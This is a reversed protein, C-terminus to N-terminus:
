ENIIDILGSTGVSDIILKACDGFRDLGTGALFNGIGYNIQKNLWERFKGLEDSILNLVESVKDRIASIAANLAALAAGIVAAVGGALAAVVAGLLGAVKKAVELAENLIREGTGLVSGMFQEMLACPDQETASGDEGLAAYTNDLQISSIVSGTNSAIGGSILSGDDSGFILNNTHSVFSNMSSGVDSVLTNLSNFSNYVEPYDVELTPFDLFAQSITDPVGDFASVVDNAIQENPNRLIETPNDDLKLAIKSAKRVQESSDIPLITESM